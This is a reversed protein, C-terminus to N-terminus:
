YHVHHDVTLEPFRLWKDVLSQVDNLFDITAAPINGSENDYSWQPAHTQLFVENFQLGLMNADCYDHLESFSRPLPKEMLAFDTLVVQMIFHAMARVCLRRNEPTDAVMPTTQEAM